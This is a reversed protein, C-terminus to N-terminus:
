AALALVVDHNDNANIMAARGAIREGRAMEVATSGIEGGDLVCGPRHPIEEAAGVTETGM